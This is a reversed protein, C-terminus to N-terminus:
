KGRKKIMDGYVPIHNKYKQSGKYYDGYQPVYGKYIQYKDGYPVIKDGYKPIYNKYYQGDKYYNGYQPTYNKYEQKFDDAFCPPCLFLLVLIIIYRMM